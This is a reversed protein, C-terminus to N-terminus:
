IEDEEWQIQYLNNYNLKTVIYGLDTFEKFIREEIFSFPILQPNNYSPLQKLSITTYPRNSSIDNKIKDEIIQLDKSIDCSDAISKQENNYKTHWEDYIERNIRSQERAEKASIMYEGRTHRYDM